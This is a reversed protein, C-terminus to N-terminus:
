IFKCIMQKQPPNRVCEKIVPKQEKKKTKVIKQYYVKDGESGSGSGSGDDSESDYVVEIVKNIKKKIPKKRVEEQKMLERVKKIEDEKAKKLNENAIRVSEVRKKNVELMRERMKERQEPTYNRKVKPKLINDPQQTDENKIEQNDLNDM